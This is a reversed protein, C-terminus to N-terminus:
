DAVLASADVFSAVLTGLAERSGKPARMALNKWTVGAFWVVGALQDRGLLCPLIQREAGAQKGTVL